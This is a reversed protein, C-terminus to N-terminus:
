RCVVGTVQGARIGDNLPSLGKYSLLSCAACRIIHYGVVRRGTITIVAQVQQGYYGCTTCKSLNESGNLM